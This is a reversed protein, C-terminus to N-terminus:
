LVMKIKDCFFLEKAVETRLTEAETQLCNRNMSHIMNNDYLFVWGDSFRVEIGYENIEEVVGDIKSIVEIVKDGIALAHNVDSYEKPEIILM